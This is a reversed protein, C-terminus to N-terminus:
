NRDSPRSLLDHDKEIENAILTLLKEDREAGIRAIEEAPLGALDQAFTTWRNTLEERIRRGFTFLANEAADKPIVVGTREALELKKLETSVREREARQAHFSGDNVRDDGSPAPRRRQAPDTNKARAARAESVSVKPAEGTGRNPIIGARVQRSITSAAVGLQGAAERIGVIDTLVETEM